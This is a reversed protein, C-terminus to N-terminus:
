KKKLLARFRFVKTKVTRTRPLPPAARPRPSSPPSNRDASPCVQQAAPPQTRKRQIEQCQHQLLPEEPGAPVPPPNPKLHGAGRPLQPPPTTTDRRGGVTTPLPGAAVKQPLPYRGGPRRVLAQRPHLAQPTPPHSFGRLFAGPEPIVRVSGPSRLWCSSAAMGPQPPALSWCSRCFDAPQYDFSFSFSLFFFVLFVWLTRFSGPQKEDAALM